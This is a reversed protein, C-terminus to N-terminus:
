VEIVPCRLLLWDKAVGAEKLAQALRDSLMVGFYTLDDCWIDPRELVTKSYFLQDDVPNPPPPGFRDRGMYM